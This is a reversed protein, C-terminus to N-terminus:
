PQSIPLSSCSYVTKSQEVMTQMSKSQVQLDLGEHKDRLFGGGNRSVFQTGLTAESSHWIRGPVQWGVVLFLWGLGKLGM